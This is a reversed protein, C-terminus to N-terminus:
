VVRRPMSRTSLLQKKIEIEPNGVSLDKGVLQLTPFNKWSNYEPSFVMDIKGYYQVDPLASSLYGYCYCEFVRDTSDDGVVLKMGKDSVLKKAEKVILNRGLFIPKANGDGCPELLKVTRMLDDNVDALKLEADVLLHSTDISKEIAVKQFYENLKEKLAPLNSSKVSFGAAGAHGGHSLLVDKCSQLAQFIDYNSVSRCSAHCINDEDEYYVMAPKTYREKLKASVLGIIGKHLEKSGLLIFPLESDEESLLDDAIQESDSTMKQRMTNLKNLKQALMKAEADDTSILLNFATLPSDIRGAANIKPALRFGINDTNVNSSDIDSADLLAIVGTLDCKSFMDLGQQALMRNELRDLPVVDAITGLAVLVLLRQLSQELFYRQNRPAYVCMAQCFKYAIGVGAFMDEPYLCDEQKPNVIGFADPLVAGPTHHDTILFDINKSKLYEAVKNSSIGNDVTIVLDVPKPRDFYMLISDVNIGYGDNLRDPVHVIFNAGLLSLFLHLLASSSVGDVDYDGYVLILEKSQIAKWIRKITKDMDKMLFPNDVYPITYNLYHRVTTEDIIGRNYLLQNLMTNSYMYLSQDAPACVKWRAIKNKFSM